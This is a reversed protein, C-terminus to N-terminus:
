CKIDRWHEPDQAHGSWQDAIDVGGTFSATGYGAYHGSFNWTDVLCGDFEGIPTDGRMM